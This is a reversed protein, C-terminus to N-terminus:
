QEKRQKIETFDRLISLDASQQSKAKSQMDNYEQNCKVYQEDIDKKVAGCEKLEYKKLLEDKYFDLDSKILKEKKELLISNEKIGIIDHILPLYLWSHHLM